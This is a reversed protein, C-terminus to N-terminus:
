GQQHNRSEWEPRLMSYVYADRLSGDPKFFLGRQVGERQMGAKEATRASAINLEDCRWLLRQWPWDTFGWALLASLVKTGLGKGAHDVHIWMGIEACAPTLHTDRPHLGTGGLQRKGDPSYIGFGFDEGTIYRSCSRRVFLEGDMDSYAPTAWAMFPAMHQASERISKALLRGDGPNYHRLTFDPTDRRDPALFNEM